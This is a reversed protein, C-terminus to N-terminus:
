QETGVAPAPGRRFHYITDRINRHVHLGRAVAADVVTAMWVNRPAYALLFTGDETLLADVADLLPPVSEPAYIIDSGAVVDFRRGGHRALFARAPDGGWLLKDM